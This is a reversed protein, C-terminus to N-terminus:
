EVGTIAFPGWFFPHAWEPRARRVHRKADRLARAADIPRGAREDAAVRRFLDGVLEATSADDVAWQSAVVSRSGAVLFGRSLAFVGEGAVLRGTNSSCASLVALACDLRLDYIEFLQLFGDDDGASSGAPPPTLALAAFIEGGVQDVLGHTAVHVYRKGAIERRFASERAGEGELVVVDAVAELAGRVARSEAATGPLRALPRAGAAFVPDAVSLASARGTPGASPAARSRLEHVFTASPAYRLVPGADLWFRTARLDPGPEIVLTEFPLLFLPGDPVVLVESVRSVRPWLDGPLLVRRLARLRALNMGASTSLGGIGRTVAQRPATLESLVGASGTLLENLATETLPGQAVGLAVADEAGVVLARAEVAGPAPPVVFVYSGASSVEYLLLLGDAPVVGAQIEAATATEGAVAGRWAPSANRAEDYLARFSRTEEELRRELTALRLRREAEPVDTRTSEFTLRERIEALESRAAAQRRELEPDPRATEGVHAAALQDLLARARGREAAALARDLHGAEIEWRVVREYLEAYRSFFEARVSEGGGRHPRMAEVVRLAGALDRAARERDQGRVLDARLALADVAVAPHAESGGLIEIARDLSARATAGRAPDAALCRAHATLVEAVDPHQPGFVRERIELARRYHEEAAGCKGRERLVEALDLRALAVHPHDPGLGREALELAERLRPEAEALRGRERELVASQNLFEFLEPSDSGLTKRALDLAERYLPEAEDPKGQVRYLEALNLTARAVAREDRPTAAQRLALSRRLLTEAEDFRGQDRCVGALNNVYYPIQPSDAGLKEPALRVLDELVGAAEAYRAQMRYLEALYNRGALIQEWDPNEAGEIVALADPLMAAADHLRGQFLLVLGLDRRSEATLVDRAPYIRERIALARREADEARGFDGSDFYLGSLDHLLSALPGPEGDARAERIALARELLRLAASTGEASATGHFRIALGELRTALDAPAQGEQTAEREIAAEALELARAVEGAELRAEIEADEQSASGAVRPEVAAILLLGIAALRRILVRVRDPPHERDPDHAAM